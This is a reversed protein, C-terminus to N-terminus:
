AVRRHFIKSKPLEDDLELAHQVKLWYDIQVDHSYTGDHMRAHDSLCVPLTYWHGMRKNGSKIHHINECPRRLGDSLWCVICGVEKLREARAKEAKTWADKRWIM